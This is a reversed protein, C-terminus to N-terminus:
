ARERFFEAALAALRDIEAYSNHSSMSRLFPFGIVPCMGSPTSLWGHKHRLNKPKIRGPSEYTQWEWNRLSEGYRLEFQTLAAVGNVLVLCPGAEEILLSAVQAATKCGADNAVLATVQIESLGFQGSAYPILEVYVMKKTAYEKEDLRTVEEGLVAASLRVLPRFFKAYWHDRNHTRCFDWFDGSLLPQEDGPLQHNLSIVLTWSGRVLADVDGNFWIPPLGSFSTSLEAEGALGLEQNLKQLHSQWDFSFADDYITRLRAQWKDAM